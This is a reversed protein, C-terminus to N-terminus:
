RRARRRTVGQGEGETEVQAADDAGPHSPPLRCAEIIGWSEAAPWGSRGRNSADTPRRRYSEPRHVSSRGVGTVRMGDNIRILDGPPDAVPCANGSFPPSRNTM